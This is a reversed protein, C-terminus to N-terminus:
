YSKIVAYRKELMDKEFLARRKLPCKMCLFNNSWCLVHTKFVVGTENINCLIVGNINSILWRKM